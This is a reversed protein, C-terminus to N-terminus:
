NLKDEVRDKVVRSDEIRDEVRDKRLGTRYDIKDTGTRNRAIISGLFTNKGVIPTSMAMVPCCSTTM